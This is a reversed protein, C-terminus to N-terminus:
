EIRLERVGQPCHAHLNPGLLWPWFCPWYCSSLLIPYYSIWDGKVWLLHSIWAKQDLARLIYLKVQCVLTKHFWSICFLRFSSFQVWSMRNDNRYLIIIWAYYLFSTCITSHAELLLYSFNFSINYMPGNMFSTTEIPLSPLILIGFTSM